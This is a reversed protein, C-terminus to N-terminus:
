SRASWPGSGTGARASRCWPCGTRQRRPRVMEPTWSGVPPLTATGTQLYAEDTYEHNLVLLGRESGAPGRGIPFYHMGDHHMGVQQEQEAASNGGPVFAPFAGLIPTGWPIFATATYGDPVVIEDSTSLPVPSYGLLDGARASARHTTAAAAPAGAISTTLFGAAVAMGGTLASRRSLRRAVVEAFSTDTSPNSSLDDPDLDM